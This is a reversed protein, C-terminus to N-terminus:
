SSFDTTITAGVWLRELQGRSWSPVYVAAHLNYGEAEACLRGKRRARPKGSREGRLRPVPQGRHPGIAQMGQSSAAGFAALAPQEECLEAYADTFAEPETLGRRDLLRQVRRAITEVLSAIDEDTPPPLEHFLPLEGERKTYVGDLVLVHYHPNLALNSSFRQVFSVAGCQPETLGRRRARLRYWNFLTRVLVAGVQLELDHDFALIFRLRFPLTLVFQRVPTEPLVLDVLHAAAESMRRGCCSPCFGRGGCSFPVLRSAHCTDCRLRTFGHALVRCRLFARFEEKVFAPVPRGEEETLALFSNLNERVIRHLLSAEPDRRRYKPEDRPPRTATWLEPALRM